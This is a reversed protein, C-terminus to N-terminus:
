VMSISIEVIKAIAYKISLKQKVGNQTPLETPKFLKVVVIAKSIAPLLKPIVPIIKAIGAAANICLIKFYRTYM